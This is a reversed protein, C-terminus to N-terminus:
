WALTGSRQWALQAALGDRIATKPAYGLREQAKSINAKTRKQDGPRKPGRVLNPKKGTLDALINLVENVTVEDGGGINFTEGLSKDRQEMALILGNVCDDIYTNSRSDTGDGFVTITEDQLISRIFIHYGMDPRQGPGYVSFLRCTTVPLDDKAAYAWCLQEAALKTIGYPSVPALRTEENGTAIRGYVSSTSINIFHPLDTTSNVVAELLRQTAQVNCTMYSDFDSWSLLLGAQAALHFIVDMGTLYVEIDDTRFDVEHFEFASNNKLARLNEEKLQRPYYPIFGDLGVVSHGLRVLQKSLHAGVFGAAGTVLVKSM